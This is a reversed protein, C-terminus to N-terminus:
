YKSVNTGLQFKRYETYLHPTYNKVWIDKKTQFIEARMENTFYEEEYHKLEEWLEQHYICYEVGYDFLLEEGIQINRSAYFVGTELVVVNASVHSHNMCGFHTVQQHPRGWCCANLRPSTWDRHLYQCGNCEPVVASVVYEMSAGKQQDDNSFPSVSLSYGDAKTSKPVIIGTYAGIVTDCPLCVTAYLSRCREGHKVVVRTTLWRALSDDTYVLSLRSCSRCKKKKCLVHEKASESFCNQPRFDKLPHCLVHCFKKQQVKPVARCADHSRSDSCIDLCCLCAKRKKAARNPQKRKDEIHRGSVQKVLCQKLHSARFSVSCYMACHPCRRKAPVDVHADIHENFSSIKLFGCCHPCFRHRPFITRLTEGRSESPRHITFSASSATVMPRDRCQLHHRLFHDVLNSTILKRENSLSFSCFPCKLSLLHTQIHSVACSQEFSNFCIPCPFCLVNECGACM